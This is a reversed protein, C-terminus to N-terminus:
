SHGVPTIVGNQVQGFDVETKANLDGNSQFSITGTVGKFTEKHLATVLSARFSKLNSATLTPRKVAALAAIIMNTADYSQAAYTANNAPFHALAQYATALSGTLNANGGGAESVYVGNAASAPSTGQVLASSWAGDGSMITGKYGASNLAGLLLGLDCYYGGYFVAAAKSSVIQTAAASYQTASATGGCSSTEPYSNTTVTAGDAKASSAVVAALGSGYFSGDDVVYVSNLSKTKVLFDADAAGQVDDGAVVRMFNNNSIGTALAAATASPSVTPVSAASYYPEAARTAGSFAPGVVAVLNKKAVAAQAQAPSLTGSGQDDYTSLALTFPYKGSANAKNIALQVGFVMNLGLQANGGTLPGEYGIVYTPKTAAGSASAIGVAPVAMLLLASSAVAAVTKNLRLKM